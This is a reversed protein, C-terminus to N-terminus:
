VADNWEKQRRMTSADAAAPFFSLAEIRRRLAAAAPERAHAQALAQRAEQCYLEVTFACAQVTGAEMLEARVADVASRDLRARDLLALFRD